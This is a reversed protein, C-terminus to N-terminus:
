SCAFWYNFLMKSQVPWTVKFMDSLRGSRLWMMESAPSPHQNDQSKSCQSLIVILELTTQDIGHSGSKSSSLSPSLSFPFSHPPISPSFSSTVEFSRILSHRGKWLVLKLFVTEPMCPWEGVDMPEHKLNRDTQWLSKVGSRYAGCLFM